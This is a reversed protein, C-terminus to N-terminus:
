LLRTSTIVSFPMWVVDNFTESPLQRKKNLLSTMSSKRGSDVDHKSTSVINTAEKSDYHMKTAKSCWRLLRRYGNQILNIFPNEDDPLRLLTELVSKKRSANEKQTKHKLNPKSAQSTVPNIADIDSTNKSAELHTSPVQLHADVAAKTKNSLRKPVTNDTLM